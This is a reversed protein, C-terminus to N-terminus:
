NAVAAVKEALADSGGYGTRFTENGRRDLLVFSSQEVVRFHKWIRGREDILHTIEPVQKAFTEIAPADDLSSVGMVRVQGDSQKALRQVELIQSRCTPCWPAWFWLLAPKGYLSAGDFAKGETTTGSFRLSAPIEVPKAPKTSKAAMSRTGDLMPTTPAATATSVQPARETASPEAIQPAGCGLLLALLGLMILWRRPNM